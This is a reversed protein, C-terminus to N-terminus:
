CHIHLTNPALVKGVLAWELCALDAVDEDELVFADAEQCTLKLRGMMEAVGDGSAATPSRSSSATNRPLDEHRIALKGTPVAGRSRVEEPTTGDSAM